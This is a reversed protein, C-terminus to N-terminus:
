ITGGAWLIPQLLKTSMFLADSSLSCACSGSLLAFSSHSHSVKIIKRALGVCLPVIVPQDKGAVLQNLQQKWGPCRM